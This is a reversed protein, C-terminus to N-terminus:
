VIGTPLLSEFWSKRRKIKQITKKEKKKIDFLDFTSFVHIDIPDIFNIAWNPKATENKEEYM